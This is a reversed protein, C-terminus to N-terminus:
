LGQAGDPDHHDGHDTRADAGPLDLHLGDGYERVYTLHTEYVNAGVKVTKVTAYFASGNLRMFPFTRAPLEGCERIAKMRLRFMWKWDEGYAGAAVDKDVLDDLDCGFLELTEQNADLITFTDHTIIADM